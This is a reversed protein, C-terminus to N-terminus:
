LRPIRLSMGTKIACPNIIGNFRAILWWHVPTNYVRYSVLDLRGSENALVTVTDYNYLSKTLNSQPLDFTTDCNYYRSKSDYIVAM